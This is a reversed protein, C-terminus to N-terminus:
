VNENETGNNEPKKIGCDILDQEIREDCVERLAELFARCWQGELQDILQNAAEKYLLHDREYVGTFDHLWIDEWSHERDKEFIHILIAVDRSLQIFKRDYKKFFDEDSSGLKVTSM